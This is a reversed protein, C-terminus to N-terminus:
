LTANPFPSDIFPNSSPFILDRNFIFKHCCFVTSVKTNKPLIKSYRNIKHKLPATNHLHRTDFSDIVHLRKTDRPRDMLKQAAEKRAEVDRLTVGNEEEGDEFINNNQSCFLPGKVRKQFGIRTKKTGSEKKKKKM